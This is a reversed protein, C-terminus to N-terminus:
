FFNLQKDIRQTVQQVVSKADSIKLLVSKFSTVKIGDEIKKSKINLIEIEGRMISGRFALKGVQSPMGPHELPAHGSLGFKSAMPRTM